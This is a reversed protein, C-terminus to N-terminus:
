HIRRLVGPLAIPIWDSRNVLEWHVERLAKTLEFGALLAEIHDLSTPVAPFGSTAGQYRDRICM